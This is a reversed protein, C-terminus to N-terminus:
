LPRNVALYEETVVSIRGDEKVVMVRVTELDHEIMKMCTLKKWRKTEQSIESGGKIYNKCTYQCDQSATKLPLTSVCDQSATKLPLTSLCDQSAAKLPLRSLCDRSATKFPLRSLCDQSATKLPLRSLHGFKVIKIKKGKNNQGNM